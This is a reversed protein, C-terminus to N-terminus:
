YLKFWVRTRFFDVADHLWVYGIARRTCYIKTIADAGPRLSPLGNDALTARALVTVGEEGRVEAGLHVERIRAERDTRPEAALRYSVRLAPGQEAQAAALLGVGDEPVQLELEWPGAVDLLIQGRRVPRDRLLEEVNWTTVEGAIPSTIKLQERKRRLLRLQEDLSALRQKLESREGSLRHRESVALKTSDEYLAREVALLQEQAATRRGTVDAFNVDLDTNRLEALLQGAAVRDGHRVHISRVTGELPAFIHHRQAPQLVGRASLAFDAQLFKLAAAAAVLTAAVAITKAKTGPAFLSRLGAAAKWLPLLPISEHELAKTLAITAHEAVMRAREDRGAAPSIDEIQEIVIAGLPKPRRGKRTNGAPMLPLVATQKVHTEDVYRNLADRLQPALSDDVDRFWQAEGTAAVEATLRALLKAAQSRPEVADVGSTATVVYRKGRRLMVTVRDCGILRRGDNAVVYAAYSTDLREHVARTFREVDDILQQRAHLARERGRREFAAYADSALAVAELLQRRRDPMFQDDVVLEVTGRLHDDLVLPAILVKTSSGPSVDDNRRLSRDVVQPKGTSYVEMVACEHSAGVTEDETEPQRGVAALVTLTREASPRRLRGGAASVAQALHSLWASAYAEASARSAALEALARQLEASQATCRTTPVGVPM